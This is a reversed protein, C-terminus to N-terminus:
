RSAPAFIFPYRFTVDGNTPSPFRMARFQRAVCTGVESAGLTNQTVRARTVRGIAGVTFAVTVRGALTPTRRLEREYCAKIAGLRRGVTARVAGEDLYGTSPSPQPSGRKIRADVANEGAVAGSAVERDGSTRLSGLAVAEDSSGGDVPRRLVAGDDAKAVRVGRIQELVADQDATISGGRLTDLVVGDGGLSGLLGIRGLMQSSSQELALRVRERRATAEAHRRATDAAKTPSPTRPTRGRPPAKTVREEEASAVVAEEAGTSATLDERIQDLEMKSPPTDFLQRVYISDTDFSPQVPWDHGVLWLVIGFQAAFSAAILVTFFWDISRFWGGRVGAPLRPTPRATPPHVMQFLLTAEGLSIKGRADRSLELSFGRGRRRVRGSSRLVSLDSFGGPFSVRGEMQHTFCLHYSGGRHEFLAHRPPLQDSTIVIDNKESGGITVDRGPEFIKEEVIRGSLVVGVRLVKEQQPQHAEGGGASKVASLRARGARDRQHVPSM